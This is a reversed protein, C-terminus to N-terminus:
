SEREGAPGLVSEIDNSIRSRAQPDPVHRVISEMITTIIGMGEELTLVQRLEVMRRWELAAARAQEGLVSQIEGWTEENRMGRQVLVGMRDMAQRIVGPDGERFGAQLETWVSQLDGYLSGAEGTELRELLEKLRVDLLSVATRHSLLAPDEYAENFTDRLGRPLYKSMRGHRFNPSEIGRPTAGGHWKCM